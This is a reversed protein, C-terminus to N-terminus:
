SSTGAARKSMTRPSNESPFGANGPEPIRALVCTCIHWDYWGLDPRSKHIHKSIEDANVLPLVIEGTAEDVVLRGQYRQDGVRANTLGLLRAISSKGSGNPGVLAIVTPWASDPTGIFFTQRGKM